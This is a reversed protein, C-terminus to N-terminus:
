PLQYILQVIADAMIDNMTGIGIPQETYFNQFWIEEYGNGRLITSVNHITSGRQRAACVVIDAKCNVAEQLWQPQVSQPDGATAVVVCKVAGSNTVVKFMAWEDAGSTKTSVPTGLKRIVLKLTSTKGWDARAYDCIFYKLAM